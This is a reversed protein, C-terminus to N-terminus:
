RLILNLPGEVLPSPNEVQFFPDIDIKAGENFHLLMEEQSLGTNFSSLHIAKADEFSLEIAKSPAADNLVSELESLDKYRRKHLAQALNEKRYLVMESPGYALQDWAYIGHNLAIGNKSPPHGLTLLFAYAGTRDLMQRCFNLDLRDKIILDDKAFLVYESTSDFLSKLFFAKFGKEPGKLMRVNPFDDRIKEYAAAFREDFAQYCVSVTCPGTAYRHLSELSAYLQLPADKSFIVLDIRSADPLAPFKALPAHRTRFVERSASTKLAAAGNEFVFPESLARIRGGSKEVLSLWMSQPHQIFAGDLILDELPISQFLAAYFATFPATFPEFGRKAISKLDFFPTKLSEYSPYHLGEAFAIWADPNQFAQDLKTLVKDHTFWNKAELPLLIECSTAQESARYLSGVFGLFSDNCLAMARHEQQNELIFQQAIELTGDVSADDIVVVRYADYDQEFISQLAREIWSAANHAYLVVAFSKHEIIPRDREPHIGEICPSFAM